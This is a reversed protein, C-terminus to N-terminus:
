EVDEDIIRRGGISFGTYEGSKFKGLIEDDDPMMGVLLGTTQTEINLSKAIDTTLPFAFVVTGRAEAKKQTDVKHMEGMVRSNRMFDTAAKLMSSEPIHDDQRDFYDEGNHKCIIAFGMVLGLDEDVKCVDADMVRTNHGKSGTKDLLNEKRLIREAWLIGASGGWGDELDEVGQFKEHFKQIDSLEVGDGSHNFLKQWVPDDVALGANVEARKRVNRPIRFKKETM